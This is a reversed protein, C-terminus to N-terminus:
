TAAKLLQIWGPIQTYGMEENLHLIPANQSDNDTQVKTVGLAIAQMVTELKLARAVGQGRVSRATGTWDTAVHGRKPPYALISMGVIDDGRRAIWLRDEHTSPSRLWKMFQDLPEAVHPVTTPVDQTAEENMEHTKRYKDPDPDDSFVGITIGQRRMRERSAEAMKTLRERNAVLDLEWAKGRREERYGRAQLFDVLFQDDEYTGASWVETGDRRSRDEVLDFARALRDETRLGPRLNAGVRGYRKSLKEWPAHIQNAIGVTSGGHEIIFREVTWAPDMSAWWHRLVEPDSPQAPYVESLVDAVAAADDLDAPRFILDGREVRTPVGLQSTVPTFEVAGPM